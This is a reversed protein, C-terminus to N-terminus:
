ECVDFLGLGLRADDEIESFLNDFGRVATVDIKVRGNKFEEFPPAMLEVVDAEKYDLTLVKVVAQPQELYTQNCLSLASCDCSTTIDTTNSTM